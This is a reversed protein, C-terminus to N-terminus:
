PHRLRYLKGSGSIPETITWNTGDKLPSNTITSWGNSVAMDASTAQLVFGEFQEPWELIVGFPARKFQILPFPVFDVEDIWTSYSPGNFNWKIVHNGPNITVTRQYWTGPTGSLLSGTQDVMFLLRSSFSSDDKRWWFRLVGPGQISSQLFSDTFYQSVFSVAATGDHTVNTEAVCALSGWTIWNSLNLAFNYATPVLLFADAAAVANYDNSIVASNKNM